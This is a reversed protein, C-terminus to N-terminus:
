IVEDHILIIPSTVFLSLVLEPQMRGLILSLSSQMELMVQEHRKFDMVGDSSLTPMAEFNALAKSKM